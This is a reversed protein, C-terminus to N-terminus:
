LVGAIAAEANLWISLEKKTIAPKYSSIKRERGQFKSKSLFNDFYKLFRFIHRSINNLKNLCDLKMWVIMIVNWEYLCNVIKM